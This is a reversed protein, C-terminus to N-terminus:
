YVKDDEEVTASFMKSNNPPFVYGVEKVGSPERVFVTGNISTNYKYAEVFFKLDAYENQEKLSVLDIYIGNDNIVFTKQKFPTTILIKKDSIISISAKRKIFTKM